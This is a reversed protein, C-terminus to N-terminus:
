RDELKDKYHEIIRDMESAYFKKLTREKRSATFM